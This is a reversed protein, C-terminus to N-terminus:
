VTPASQISIPGPSLLDAVPRRVQGQHRSQVPLRTARSTLAKRESSFVELSRDPLDKPRRQHPLQM